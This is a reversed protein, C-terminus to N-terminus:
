IPNIDISILKINTNYTTDISAGGSATARYYVTQGTDTFSHVEGVTVAEWNTGDASMEWTLTGTILDSNVNLRAKTVTEAQDHIKESQLVQGNTFDISGSVGLGVTATTNGDDIFENDVFHEHFTGSPNVVYFYDISNEYASNWVAGTEGWQLNNVTRASNNFGKGWAGDGSVDRTGVKIGSEETGLNEFYEMILFPVKDPKNGQQARVEAKDVKVDFLEKGM